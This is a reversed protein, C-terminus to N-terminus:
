YVRYIVTTVLVVFVSGKIFSFLTAHNRFIWFVVAEVVKITM